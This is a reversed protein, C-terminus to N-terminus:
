KIKHFIPLMCFPFHGFHGDSALNDLAHGQLPQSNNPSNHQAIYYALAECFYTVGYDDVLKQISVAKASPHKMMVQVHCHTM